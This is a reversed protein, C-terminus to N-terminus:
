QFLRGNDGPALPAAPKPADQLVRDLTAYYRIDHADEITLGLPYRKILKGTVHRGTSADLITIQQM